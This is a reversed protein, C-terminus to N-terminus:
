YRVDFGGNAHTATFIFKYKEGKIYDVKLENSESGNIDKEYITKSGSKVALHLKGKTLNASYKFNFSENKLLKVKFDQKGNFDEFTAYCHGPTDSSNWSRTYNNFHLLSATIILLIKFNM